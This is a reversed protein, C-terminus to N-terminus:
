NYFPQGIPPLHIEVAHGPPMNYGFGMEGTYKDVFLKMADPMGAVFGDKPTNEVRDIMSHIESLWLQWAIEIMRAAIEPDAGEIVAKLEDSLEYKENAQDIIFFDTYIYKSATSRFEPNYSRYGLQIGASFKGDELACLSPEGAKYEWGEGRPASENSRKVVATALLDNDLIRKAFGSLRENLRLEDSDPHQEM